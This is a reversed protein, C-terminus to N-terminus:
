TPWRSTECREKRETQNRLATRPAAPSASATRTTSIVFTDCPKQTTSPANDTSRELARPVPAVANRAMPPVVIPKTTPAAMMSPTASWVTRSQTSSGNATRTAPIAGEIIEKTAPCAPNVSTTIMKNLM